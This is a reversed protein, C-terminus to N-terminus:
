VLATALLEEKGLSEAEDKKPLYKKQPDANGEKKKKLIEEVKKLSEVKELAEAAALTEEDSSNQATNAMPNANGKTTAKLNSRTKPIM